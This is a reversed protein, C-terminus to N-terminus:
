KKIKNSKSNRWLLGREVLGNALDQNNKSNKSACFRSTIEKISKSLFNIQRAIEGHSDNTFGDMGTPPGVTNNVVLRWDIDIKNEMVRGGPRDCWTIHCRVVRIPDFGKLSSGESPIKGILIRKKYYPPLTSIKQGLTDNLSPFNSEGEIREFIDIVESFSVKVHYAPNSSFNNLVFQIKDSQFGDPEIWATIHPTADEERYKRARILTLVAVSTLVASFLPILADPAFGKLIENCSIVLEHLSTWISATKM